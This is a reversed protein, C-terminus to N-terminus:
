KETKVKSIKGTAFDVSYNSEMDCGYKPLIRRLYADKQVELAGAVLKYSNILEVRKRLENLEQKSLRKKLM